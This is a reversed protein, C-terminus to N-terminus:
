KTKKSKINKAPIEFLWVQKVKGNEKKVGFGAKHRGTFEGSEKRQKFTKRVLHKQVEEEVTSLESAANQLRQKSSKIYDESIDIGIYKKKLLKAAVLTTGSGCYPDLVVGDKDNLMSVIIRTPLTVPFPAPHPNKQEPSFRWISSLLAHKSEMEIGIKHANIPKYLWYIREDVQWFRWGRINAAIKRDWIIEQRITWKTKILWEMPHIMLGRDWRTKHNYFFSGGEKTVRFIENLVNIQEEQYKEEPKIDKFSDYKVNKVLWGKQKEQKNYPPSTVGVDISNSEFTQLVEFVDGKIITNLHKIIINGETNLYTDAFSRTLINRM